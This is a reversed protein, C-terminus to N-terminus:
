CYSFSKPIEYFKIRTKANMILNSICIFLMKSCCKIKEFRTLVCKKHNVSAKKAHSNSLGYKMNRCLDYIQCKQAYEHSLDELVDHKTTCRM